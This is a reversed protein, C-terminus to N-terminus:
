RRRWSLGSEPSVRSPRGRGGPRLCTRCLLNPQTKLIFQLWRLDGAGEGLATARGLGLLGSALGQWLFRQRRVQSRGRSFQWGPSPDVNQEERGAEDLAPSPLAPSDAQIQAGDGLALVTREAPGGPSLSGLTLTVRSGMSPPSAVVGTRQAGTHTHGLLLLGLLQGLSHAKSAPSGQSSLTWGSSLEKQGV